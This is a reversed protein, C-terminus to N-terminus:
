PSSSVAPPHLSRTRSDALNRVYDRTDLDRYLVSEPTDTLATRSSSSYSFLYGGILRCIPTPSLSPGPNAEFHVMPYSIASFLVAQALLYPVEVLVQAAAFPMESYYGAARERDARMCANVCLM